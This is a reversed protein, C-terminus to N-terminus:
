RGGSKESTLLLEAMSNVDAICQGLKSEIGNFVTRRADAAAQKLALLNTEM